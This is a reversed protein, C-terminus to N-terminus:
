EESIRSILTCCHFLYLLYWVWMQILDDEITDFYIGYNLSYM